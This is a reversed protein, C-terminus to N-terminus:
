LAQQLHPRLATPLWQLMVDKYTDSAVVQQLAPALVKLQQKGLENNSCAIYGYSLAPAESVPFISLQKDLGMKESLYQFESPYSLLIDLRKKALMYTLSALVDRGPRTTLQSKPVQGIVTDLENGYSRGMPLGLRLHHESLLHTLSQPAGPTLGLKQAVEKHMVLAPSLGITSYQESFHLESRRQETKYLSLLCYTSQKHRLETLLHSSPIAMYKFDYEPLQQQLLHIVQEDRGQGVNTGNFIYYPEFDLTLWTISNSNIGYATSSLLLAIGLTLRQGPRQRFAQQLGHRLYRM